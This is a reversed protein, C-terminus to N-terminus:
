QEVGPRLPVVKDPQAEARHASLVSHLVSLLQEATGVSMAVATHPVFNEGLGEGFVLKLNNEIGIVQIVFRNTYTAPVQMALKVEPNQSM